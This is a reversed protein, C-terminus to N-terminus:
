QGRISSSSIAPGAMKSRAPVQDDDLRRHGAAGAPHVRGLEDAGQVGLAPSSSTVRTRSTNMCLTARADADDDLHVAGTAASIAPVSATAAAPPSEISTFSSRQVAGRRRTVSLHAINFRIDGQPLEPSRTRYYSRSPFRLREVNYRNTLSAM